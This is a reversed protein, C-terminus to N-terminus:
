VTQGARRIFKNALKFGVYIGAWLLLMTGGVVAVAAAVSALDIPLAIAPMTPPGGGGALAVTSSAGIALAAVVRSRHRQITGLMNSIADKM